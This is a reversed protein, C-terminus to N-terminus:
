QTFQLEFVIPRHDSAVPEDVVAGSIVKLIGAPRYLLYDLQREPQPAPFTLFDSKDVTASNWKSLLTRIPGSTPVANLDGTLIVTQDRYMDSDTFLANLHEAQLQRIPENNHHLHTTVFTLTRSGLMVSVAGAIRQERDPMGPLWHITVDSVPHRSLIAQGYQGGEYDIQCAFRGTLGTLRALEATQDVGGTRRTKDDVEQLAVLDPKAASIVSALRSLDVKGDTGEGHHINYCLVRLTQPPDGAFMQPCSVLIGTLLYLHCHISRRM